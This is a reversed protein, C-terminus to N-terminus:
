IKILLLSESLSLLRRLDWLNDISTFWSNASIKSCLRITDPLSIPTSYRKLAFSLDFWKNFFANWLLFCSATILISSLFSFLKYDIDAKSSWISFRFSVRYLFSSFIFVKSSSAAISFSKYSFPQNTLIMWGYFKIFNIHYISDPGFRWMTSIRTKM